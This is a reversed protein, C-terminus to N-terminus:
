RPSPAQRWFALTDAVTRELPIEAHWGTDAALRATDAITDQKYGPRLEVIERSPDALQRLIDLIDGSRRNEGSGINYTEGPPVLEALLRYARVVDRVDCLDLWTDRSYVEVPDSGGRAFQCAWQSLMMRPGQRPGAHQFARAIVIEQRAGAARVAEEAALKTLGYGRRPRLPADESMWPRDPSAPAYVHSSGAFVFRPRSALSAALALARRTGEVNTALAEPTALPEGCDDPVSMAALHFLVEPAFEELRRRDDASLADAEALNWALLPVEQRVMAPATEPWCGRRSSGIVRDGSALLHEALHMGAFGTIGTVFANM